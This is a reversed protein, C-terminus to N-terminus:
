VESTDEEPSDESTAALFEGTPLPGTAKLVDIWTRTLLTALGLLAGVIVIGRTLTSDPVAGALVVLCLGTDAMVATSVVLAYIRARRRTWFRVGHDPDDRRLTRTESAITELFRSEWLLGLLVVPLVQATTAYFDPSM